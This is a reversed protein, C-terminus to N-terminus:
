GMAEAGLAVYSRYELIRDSVRIQRGAKIAHRLLTQMGGNPAVTVFDIRKSLSAVLRDRVKNNVGIFDTDPRFPSVALDTRPDFEYRWLRAARFAEDKLDEGLVRFLGRDLCLIRPAGWRLPVIASRQYEPRDHGTVLVEGGLVGEEAYKEILDLEAPRANRSSLVSFTKSELLRLNGYLFLAGPPDPDMSEILSPYHADATTVLTVGLDALRRELAMIRALGGDRDKTLSAAGKATLRYEERWSEPSLKLFEDPSRGLLGNRAVVRAVTKGGIGPTTALLLSLTRPSM